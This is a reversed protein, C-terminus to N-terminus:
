EVGIWGGEQALQAGNQPATNEANVTNDHFVAPKSKQLNTSALWQRTDPNDAEDNVQGSGM